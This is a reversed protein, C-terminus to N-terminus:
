RSESIVEMQKRMKPRIVGTSLLVKFAKGKNKLDYVIIGIMGADQWHCENVRVLDGLKM